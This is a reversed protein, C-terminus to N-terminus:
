NEKKKGKGKKSKRDREKEKKRKKIEKGMEREMIRKGKKAYKM